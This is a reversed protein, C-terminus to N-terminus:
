DALIIMASYHSYIDEGSCSYKIDIIDKPSHQLLFSNIRSELEWINESTEFMVVRM